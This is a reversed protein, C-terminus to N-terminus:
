TFGLERRREEAGPLPREQAKIVPLKPAREANISIWVSMEPPVEIHEAIAQVPCIPICAGCDICVSPDVYLRDADGHFCSVPCATVCETFRCLGCNEMVVHTM